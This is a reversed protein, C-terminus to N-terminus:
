CYHRKRKDDQEGKEANSFDDVDVNTDHALSSLFDYDKAKLESRFFQQNRRFTKVIEGTTVPTSVIDLEDNDINGNRAAQRVEALAFIASYPFLLTYMTYFLIIHLLILVNRRNQPPPLSTSSLSLPQKLRIKKMELCVSADDFLFPLFNFNFVLCTLLGLAWIGVLNEIIWRCLECASIYANSYVESFIDPNYFETSSDVTFAELPFKISSGLRLRTTTAGNNKNFFLSSSNDNNNYNNKFSEILMSKRRGISSRNRSVGGDAGGFVTNNIIEESWDLESSLKQIGDSSRSRRRM